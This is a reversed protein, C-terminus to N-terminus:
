SILSCRMIIADAAVGNADRYYDKRRGVRVFAAAQYLAIAALNNDAVELLIEEAGLERARLVAARLIKNGIGAGRHAPLVGLTIIECEGGAIRALVFGIPSSIEVGELSILLAFAGPMAMLDAFANEGWAEPFCRGHMAGLLTCCAADAPSIKLNM